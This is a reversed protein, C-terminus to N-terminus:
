LAPAPVKEVWVPVFLPERISWGALALHSLELSCLLQHRLEPHVLPLAAAGCFASVLWPRVESGILREYLFKYAAFSTLKGGALDFASLKILPGLLPVTGEILPDDPVLSQISAIEKYVRAQEAIFNAETIGRLRDKLVREGRHAVELSQRIYRQEASTLSGFEKMETLLLAGLQESM